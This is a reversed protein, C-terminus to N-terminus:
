EIATAKGVAAQVYQRLEFSVDELRKEGAMVMATQSFVHRRCSSCLHGGFPASVSKETKAMRARGVINKRGGVGLVENGCLGCERYGHRKKKFRTVLKGSPTRVHFKKRSGSRNMPKTMNCEM